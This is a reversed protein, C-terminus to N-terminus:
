LEVVKEPKGTEASRYIAEIIAVARAAERGDISPASGRQIAGIVDEFQMKHGHYGIAAPDSAGGGTSTAAAFRARLDDDAATEARFKWFPINEEEMIVSGDLGSVELRKLFGPWV